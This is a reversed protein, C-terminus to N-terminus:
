SDASTEVPVIDLTQELLKDDGHWIEFVYQGPVREFPLLMRWMAIGGWESSIGTTWEDVTLRTGTLPNAIEPHRVVTRLPVDIHDVPTDLVFRIGFWRTWDLPVETTQEILEVSGLMRIAGFGAKDARAITVPKANYLGYDILRLSLPPEGEAFVPAGIGHYANWLNFIVRSIESHSLGARRRDGEVTLLPSGPEVWFRGAGPELYQPDGEITDPEHPLGRYDFRNEWYHNGEIRLAADNAAAADGTMAVAGGNRVFSNKQVQLPSVPDTLLATERTDIFVNHEILVDAGGSAVVGFRNAYFLNERVTGHAPDAGLLIAAGGSRLVINETMGMTGGSNHVARRGVDSFVNRFIQVHSGAAMHVGNTTAAELTSESVIGSAGPEYVLARDFGSSAGGLFNLRSSEAVRVGDIRSEAARPGELTVAKMEVRANEILVAASRQDSPLNGASACRISLNEILVEGDVPGSIRLATGPGPSEIVTSGDAAGRLTISRDIRIPGEYPGPDLEVVDGPQAADVRAQLGRDRSTEPGSRQCSALSLVLLCSLRLSWRALPEM